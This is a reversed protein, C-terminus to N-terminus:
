DVEFSEPIGLSEEYGLMINLAHVVQCAGAKGQRDAMVQITLLNRDDGPSLRLRYAAFPKGTVLSTDWVGDSIERVYLSRGYCEEFLDDLVSNDEFTPVEVMANLVVVQPFEAPDVAVDVNHVLGAIELHKLLDDPFDISGSVMLAPDALAIGARLIPGLAITALTAHPTPLSVSDACVFPNNDALEVLGQVDADQGSFYLSRQKGEQYITLEGVGSVRESLSLGSHRDLLRALFPDAPRDLFVM